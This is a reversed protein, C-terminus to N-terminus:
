VSSLVTAQFSNVTILSMMQESPMKVYLLISTLWRHLGVPSDLGSSSSPPSHPKSLTLRETMDSESGLSQLGGPEEAMSKELCSYQLPNGNEGGPSRGLGPISGPDGQMAPLNKVM